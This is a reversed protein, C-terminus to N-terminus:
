KKHEEFGANIVATGVTGIIVNISATGPPVGPGVWKLVTKCNLNEGSKVTVTTDAAYLVTDIGYFSGMAYLSIAHVIGNIDAPLYDYAIKISDMSGTTFAADLTDIGQIIMRVAKISDPISIFSTRLMSYKAYLSLSVDTTDGPMTAFVTSNSQIIVGSKDYTAANLTWEVPAAISDVVTKIVIEGTGNISLTDRITDNGPSSITLVLMNLDIAQCKALSGIKGIHISVESAGFLSENKEHSNISSDSCRIIVSFCTIILCYKIIFCILKEKQNM